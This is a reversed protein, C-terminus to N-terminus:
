QQVATYTYTAVYDTDAELDYAADLTLDLDYTATVDTVGKALGLGAAVDTSEALVPALLPDVVEGKSFDWAKNSKVTIITTDDSYASGVDVGAFDVANQNLTMSFAPNVRATVAVDGDVAVAYGVIGFVLAVVMVAALVTRKM